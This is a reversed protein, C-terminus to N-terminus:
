SLDGLEYQLVSLATLAATETRLIRPGLRIPKYNEAAAQVVEEDTFGGEPGIIIRCDTMPQENALQKLPVEAEPDLTLKLGEYSDRVFDTLNVAEHVTPVISRGSQECASIVVKQWQQLKKQLREGNLKVGCRESFLPTIASVGLEVSKQLAFDMRDGRSIVQGLHVQLSSESHNASATYVRAQASRKSVATLKARYDNGDGNFLCLEADVPMRLVKVSHQFADDSLTIEEDLTLSDPHYIRPIRM